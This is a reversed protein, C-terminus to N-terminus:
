TAEIISTVKDVDIECSFASTTRNIQSLAHNVTQEIINANVKGSRILKGYGGKEVLSMMLYQDLNSPFGIIYKNEAICQYAMSSGGNTIVIDAKKVTLDSPLFDTMFVNAYSNEIVYKKATVCIVTVAMYSLTKILWPLLSYDGSSGLTIFVIPKDAPLSEWWVPLPVKASWLVPGIFIHNSPLANMPVLSQIDGYFTYDAHTYIERLDYSLVPCRFEKCVKNFALTHLKFILPRVVNFIKQAMVVGFFKTIPIEPVPYEIDAYPSWYANTITAYPIKKIQCSISLSIRFDGIIFDPNIEDIIRLEENVYSSLIQANYIPLGKALKKEFYQSSISYLPIRRFPLSGVIDDYRDDAAITIIYNGSNHLEKALAVCRAMHALTVTEAFFLIHKMEVNRFICFYTVAILSVNIIQDSEEIASSIFHLM